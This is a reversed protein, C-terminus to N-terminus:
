HVQPNPVFRLSRVTLKKGGLNPRIQLERLKFDYRPDRNLQLPAQEVFSARDSREKEQQSIRKQLEKILRLSKNLNRDDSARFTLEKIFIKSHDAYPQLAQAAQASGPAALNIRLYTNNGMEQTSVSKIFSIHFPVLRRNIPVLIAERQMDVQLPEIFL